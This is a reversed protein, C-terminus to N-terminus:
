YGLFENYWVQLYAKGERIISERNEGSLNDVFPTQTLQNWVYEGEPRKWGFGENLEFYAFPKLTPNFLNKSWHFQETNLGLQSLLTATVDTNGSLLDTQKGRLSDALAPGCLLLPIKHYDYTQIPHNRYTSHSHDAMVVFLTNNYWEQQKALAFFEGLSRDTYAASNVFDEELKPWLITHEMPFDYPSHSSITFLTSFFPQPNNNLETAYYSFMYEDHVGLKGRPMSIPLDGGEIIKDFGIYRLYSLINGYILQGGFYFSNYYGNSKLVKTLSPLAAYKESHNTITTIPLGPIGSFLSGMAQQSRNASAYFNTFLLGDAELQKFNPTIGAEGGLSEILDGSWSEILLVVINPKKIQLISVTTDKEVQHLQKVISKAEDMPMSNFLFQDKITIAGITSLLMNYGPNVAAMNLMNHQSFYAASTTIPIAKWGGRIGTFIVAFFIFFSVFVVWISSSDPSKRNLILKKFLYFALASQILWISVLSLFQATSISNVIEDPNSLHMMVKYSLKTRWEGFLGLEGTAILSYV